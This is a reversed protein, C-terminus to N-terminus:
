VAIASQISELLLEAVPVDISGTYVQAEGVLVNLSLDLLYLELQHEQGNPFNLSVAMVILRAPDLFPLDVRNQGGTCNCKVTTKSMGVISEMCNHNRICNKKAKLANIRTAQAVGVEVGVGVEASVGVAVEPGVGM